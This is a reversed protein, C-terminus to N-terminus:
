SNAVLRWSASQPVSLLTIELVEKVWDLKSIEAGTAEVRSDPNLGIWRIQFNREKDM